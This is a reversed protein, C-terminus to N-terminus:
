YLQNALLLLEWIRVAAKTVSQEPKRHKGGIGGEMTWM